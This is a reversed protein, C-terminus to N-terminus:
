VLSKLINNFAFDVNERTKASTEIFQSLNLEKSMKDGEFKEIQRPLDIKNGILLIHKVKPNSKLIESHWKKVSVLSKPRTIDYVIIVADAGEYFQNRVGAFLEQGAIDWLILKIFKDGSLTFEKRLVNVGLTPIYDEAFKKEVYSNLLSTKGVSYDGCVVLKFSYKSAM